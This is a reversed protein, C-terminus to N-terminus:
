AILGIFRDWEKGRPQYQRSNRRWLIATTPAPTQFTRINFEEAASFLGQTPFQNTSGPDEGEERAEAGIRARLCGALLPALFAAGQTRDAM